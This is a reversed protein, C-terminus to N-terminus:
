LCVYPSLIGGCQRGTFPYVAGMLGVLCVILLVLLKSTLNRSLGFSLLCTGCVGPPHVNYESRM